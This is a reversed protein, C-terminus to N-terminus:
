VVWLHNIILSPTIIMVSVVVRWLFVDSLELGASQQENLAEENAAAMITEVPSRAKFETCWGECSMRSNDPVVCLFGTYCRTGARSLEM